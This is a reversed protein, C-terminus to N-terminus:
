PPAGPTCVLGPRRMTVHAPWLFAPGRRTEVSCTPVASPLGVRTKRVSTATFTVPESAQILACYFSVAPSPLFGHRKMAGRLRKARQSNAGGDNNAGDDGNARQ